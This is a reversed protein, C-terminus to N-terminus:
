PYVSLWNQTEEGANVFSWNGHYILDYNELLAFIRRRQKDAIRATDLISATSSNALHALATAQHIYSDLLVIPLPKGLTFALPQLGQINDCLQLARAETYNNWLRTWGINRELQCADWWLMLLCSLSRCGREKLEEALSARQEDNRSYNIFAEYTIVLPLKNPMASDEEDEAV